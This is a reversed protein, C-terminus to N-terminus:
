MFLEVLDVDTDATGFFSLFKENKADEFNKIERPTPGKLAKHSEKMLIIAKPGILSHFDEPLESILGYYKSAAGTNTITAVRAATYATITDFWDDTVDEIMMGNYYSAEKRASTALTLSLAGGGSSMGADLKRVRSVYDFTLVDTSGNKDLVFTKGYPYYLFSSGELNIGHRQDITVRTLKRGAADQVKRLRYFDAPVTYVSSVGTLAASKFFLSPDRNLLSNFLLEQADNIKKLIDANDFAGTTDTGQVYATSYENIAKRVEEILAYANLYSGM